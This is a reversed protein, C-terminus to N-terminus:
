HEDMFTEADTLFTKKAQTSLGFYRGLVDPATPQFGMMPDYTLHPSEFIVTDNASESSSFFVDSAIVSWLQGTPIKSTSRATVQLQACRPAHSACAIQIVQQIAPFQFLKATAEIEDLTRVLDVGIVISELQRGLIELAGPSADLLSRLRPFDTLRELNDLLFRKTYEGEKLGDKQSPGSHIVIQEIPSSTPSNLLLQCLLPLSGLRDKSPDGWAIYEWGPDEVNYVHVLIGIKTLPDM